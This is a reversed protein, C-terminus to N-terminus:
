PLLQAVLDALSGSNPDDVIGDIKLTAFVPSTPENGVPFRYGLNTLPQRNLDIGLAYSQIHLSDFDVGLGSFSDTTLSIDGPQLAPYGEEALVRPIVVDVNNNLAGNKTNIDPALFGSGSMDFNINYASYSVSAKPFSGVSGQSSYSNLYCNGFSIVHYSPANVDVGQYLDAQTFDEKFYNKDIDNGSPNVAVYINKCDKYQNVAFDQWVRKLRDEKTTNFFGSLLSVNLNDNYYAEGVFPYNFLPYNVNFGLRAENKTGCLFYDFNLKVTPSNVIPRDVLGRKNIQAINTHPVEIDYSISQIRDISHLLNLQQILNDHNNSPAGGKYDVFNYGTEPAPGVYLAQCNYIVRPQTM